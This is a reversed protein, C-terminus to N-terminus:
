KGFLTFKKKTVKDEEAGTLKVALKALSKGLESNRNLM